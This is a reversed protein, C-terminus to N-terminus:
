AATNRAQATAVVFAAFGPCEDLATSFERRNFAVVRTDALAVVTATRRAHGLLAIEGAIDGTSLTAVEVGDRSVQLQGSLVILFERGFTDEGMVEKGAAVTVTTGRRLVSALEAEPVVAALDTGSLESPIDFRRRLLM